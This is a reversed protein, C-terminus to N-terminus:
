FHPLACTAGCWREGRFDLVASNLMFISTPSLNGVEKGFRLVAELYDWDKLVNDFFFMTAGHLYTERAMRAQALILRPVTDQSWIICM